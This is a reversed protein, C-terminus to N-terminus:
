GFIDSDPPTVDKAVSAAQAELTAIAQSIEEPTLEHLDKVRGDEGTPMARDLVVRSAQVRAAAPAKANQMISILTDVAIPLAEGTLKATQTAIIRKQIEPRALVDYGSRPRLGADKEAKERSGHAAYSAIFAREARTLTGDKQPM